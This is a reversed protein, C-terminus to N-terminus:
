TKELIYIRSNMNKQPLHPGYDEYLIRVQGDSVVAAMADTYRADGSSIVGMAAIVSYDGPRVGLSGPESHWLKRYIGRGKALAIMEASIDTGDVTDFGRKALELGSIGTGCGFDLIPVSKDPLHRALADSMRGPTAYGWSTVDDDYTDAWGAYMEQTEEVSKPQWVNTLDKNSM